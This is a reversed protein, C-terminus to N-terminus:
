SDDKKFADYVFAIGTMVLGPGAGVQLFSGSYQPMTEWFSNYIVWGIIGLGMAICVMGLLAQPVGMVLGLFYKPKNKAHAKRLERGLDIWWLIILPFTVVAGIGFWGDFRLTMISLIFIVIAALLKYKTKMNVM